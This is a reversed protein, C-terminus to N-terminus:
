EVEEEEEAVCSLKEDFEVEEEVVEKVKEVSEGTRRRRM